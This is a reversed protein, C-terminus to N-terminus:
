PSWSPCGSPYRFEDVIDNVENHVHADGSLEEDVILDGMDTVSNQQQM